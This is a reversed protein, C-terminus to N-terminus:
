RWGRIGGVQSSPVRGGAGHALLVQGPDGLNLMVQQGPFISTNIGEGLKRAIGRADGHLQFVWAAKSM